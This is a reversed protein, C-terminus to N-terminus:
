KQLIERLDDVSKIRSVDYDLESLVFSYNKGKGKVLGLGRAFYSKSTEGRKKHTVEIAEFDGIPTEVKVSDDTIKNNGLENSWETGEKIPGKLFILDMEQQENIYSEALLGVGLDMYILKFYEGSKEYVMLNGIFNFTKGLAEVKIEKDDNSISRIQVKNESVIDVFDINTVGGSDNKYVKIMPKSPIFDTVLLGTNDISASDNEIGDYFFLAVLIVGISVTGIILIKRM